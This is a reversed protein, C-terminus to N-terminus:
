VSEGILIANGSVIFGAIVGGGWVACLQVEGIYVDVVRHCM